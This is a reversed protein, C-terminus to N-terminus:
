FRPKIQKWGILMKLTFLVSYSNCKIYLHCYTFSSYFRVWFRSALVKSRFTYIFWCKSLYMLSILFWMPLFIMGYPFSLASLIEEAAGYILYSHVSIPFLRALPGLHSLFALVLMWLCLWHMEPLMELLGKCLTEDVSEEFM